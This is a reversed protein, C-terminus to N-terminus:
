NETEKNKGLYVLTAVIGCSSLLLFMIWMSLKSNDGTDPTDVPAPQPEPEPQPEPTPEPQPEPAPEPQPEPWPEPTPTPTPAPEPEKYTNTFVVENAGTGDKTIELNTILKGEDNDEVTIKLEYKATDYTVNEIGNNKEKVTYTYEGENEFSIAPFTFNGDADNKVTAIVGAADSLEFEFMDAALTGNYNKKGTISFDAASAKYTNKFNLSDATLEDENFPCFIDLIHVELEGHGNDVVDVTIDYRTIDYLVGKTDEPVNEMLVYYHKGIDAKDYSYTISYKDQNNVAYTLPNNKDAIVFDDATEFLDFRFESDVLARGELTKTGSLILKADSEDVLYDNNFVIGTDGTVIKKLKGDGNDELKVTVTYETDDYVIGKLDASDPKIEKVVYTYTADFSLM